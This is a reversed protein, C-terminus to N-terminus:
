PEPNWMRHRFFVGAPMSIFYHMGELLFNAAQLTYLFNCLIQTAM